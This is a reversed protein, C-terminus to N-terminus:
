LGSIAPITEMENQCGYVEMFIAAMILHPLNKFHGITSLHVQLLQTNIRSSPNCAGFFKQTYKGSTNQIQTQLSAEKWSYKQGYLPVICHIWKKSYWCKVHQDNRWILHYVEQIEVTDM